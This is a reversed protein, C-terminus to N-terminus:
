STVSPPRGANKARSGSAKKVCQALTSPQSNKPTDDISALILADLKQFKSM